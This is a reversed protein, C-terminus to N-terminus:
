LRSQSKNQGEPGSLRTSPPDELGEQLALHVLSGLSHSVLLPQDELVGLAEQVELRMRLTQSLYLRSLKKKEETLLKTM